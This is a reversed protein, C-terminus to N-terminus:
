RGVVICGVNFVHSESSCRVCSPVEIDILDFTLFVVVLGM